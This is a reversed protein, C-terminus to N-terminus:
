RKEDMGDTDVRNYVFIIKSKHHFQLKIIEKYM